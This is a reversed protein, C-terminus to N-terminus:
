EPPMKEAACACLRVSQFRDEPMATQCYPLLLSLCHIEGKEREQLSDMKPLADRCAALAEPVTRNLGRRSGREELAPLHELWSHDAQAPKWRLM